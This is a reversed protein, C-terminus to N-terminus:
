GAILVLGGASRRRPQKLREKYRVVWPGVYGQVNNCNKGIRIAGCDDQGYHVMEALGAKLLIAGLNMPGKVIWFTRLGAATRQFKWTEHLNVWGNMGGLNLWDM